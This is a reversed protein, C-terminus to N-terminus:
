AEIGAVRLRDLVEAKTGSSDIGLTNALEVLEDKSRRDLPKASEDGKDRSEEAVAKAVAEQISTGEEAVMVRLATLYDSIEADDVDSDLADAREEDSLNAWVSRFAAVEEDTAGAKALRVFPSTSWADPNTILARIEDTVRANPYDPGFWGHGDVHVNSALEAM